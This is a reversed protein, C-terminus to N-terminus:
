RAADAPGQAAYRRLAARVSLLDGINELTLVGVLRDQDVVPLAGLAHERMRRVAAELPEHAGAVLNSRRVFDGVRRDAGGEQLARVLDARTLVGVILGHELVPFDQQSGAMLHEIARRLPDAADVVRFDTLMADRVPLGALPEGAEVM